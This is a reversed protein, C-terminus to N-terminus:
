AELAGCGSSQEWVSLPCKCTVLHVAMGAQLALHPTVMGTDVTATGTDMDTDMRTVMVMHVETNINSGDIAM